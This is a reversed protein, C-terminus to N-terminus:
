SLLTMSSSVIKRKASNGPPVGGILRESPVILNFEGILKLFENTRFTREDEPSYASKTRPFSVTKDRGTEERSVIVNFSRAIKFVKM